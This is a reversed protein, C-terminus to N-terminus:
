RSRYIICVVTPLWRLLLKKKDVAADLAEEANDNNVFADKTAMKRDIPNERLQKTWSLQHLYVDQRDKRIKLLIAPYAKSKAEM